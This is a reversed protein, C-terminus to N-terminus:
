RDGYYDAGPTFDAGIMGYALVNGISGDQATNLTTLKSNIDEGTADLLFNGKEAEGKLAIVYVDYEHTEPPYPGIYGAERSDFEGEDLHTKDVTVYWHLWNNADKDLMMVAYRGAGDVADWTLEPSKNEEKGGTLLKWEEGEISSSTVEFKELSELYIKGEAIEGGIAMDYEMETAVAVDTGFNIGVTGADTSFNMIMDGDDTVSGDMVKFSVEVNGAEGVWTAKGGTGSTTYFREFSTNNENKMNFAFLGAKKNFRIYVAGNDGEPVDSGFLKTIADAELAEGKWISGAIVSTDVECGTLTEATMDWSETEKDLYFEIDKSVKQGFLGTSDATTYTVSVTDKAIYQDGYELGSVEEVSHADIVVDMGEVFIADTVEADPVGASFDIAAETVEETSSEVPASAETVQAATSDKERACGTLLLGYALCMAATYISINRKRM